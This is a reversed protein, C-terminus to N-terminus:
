DIAMRLLRADIKGIRPLRFWQPWGMSMPRRWERQIIDYVQFFMRTLIGEETWARDSLYQISPM